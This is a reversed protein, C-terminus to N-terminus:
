LFGCIQFVRFGLGKFGSGGFRQVRSGQVELDRFGQVWLGQVGVLGWFAALGLSVRLTRVFQPVEFNLTESVGFPGM